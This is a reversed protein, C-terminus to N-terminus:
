RAPIIIMKSTTDACGNGTVILQVRYSRSINEKNFTTEIFSYYDNNTNGNGFDWKYSDITSTPITSRSNFSWRQTTANQAVLTEEFSAKPRPNEGKANVLKNTIYILRGNLKVSLIVDYDNPYKYKYTIQNGTKAQLGDSFDWEYVSGTPVNELQSTFQITENTCVNFSETKFSGKIPYKAPITVPITTDARCGGNTTITLKVPYTKDTISIPFEYRILGVASVTSKGDGWDWTHYTIAGQNVASTSNFTVYNENSPFDSKVNFSPVPKTQKGKPKVPFALRAIITNQDKMVLLNAITSSAAQYSYSVSNGTATNGDGFSWIYFSGDPVVGTAKVSFNFVETSPFCASTQNYRIIVDGFNIITTDKNVIISSATVAIANSILNNEVTSTTTEKKCSIFGVIFFGLLYYALQKNM